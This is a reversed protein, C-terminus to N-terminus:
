HRTANPESVEFPAAESAGVPSAHHLVMRWAGNFKRYVNTALLPPFRQRQLPLSITEFVTHVVLDGAALLNVRDIEFKRPLQARFIEMWSARIAASGTLVTGLPHICRIEPLEAWVGMMAELDGLEFARYFAAEAAESTDLISM